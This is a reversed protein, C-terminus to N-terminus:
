SDDERGRLGAVRLAFSPLFSATTFLRPLAYPNAGPTVFGSRATLSCGVGLEQLISAPREDYDGDTGNPYAFSTVTTGLRKEILRVSTAIESRLQEEDLRSMIYHRHTHAGIRVGGAVLRRAHDWSITRPGPGVPGLVRELHALLEDVGDPGLGKMHAVLLGLSQLRAEPEDLSLTPLGFSELDLEARETHKFLWRTRDTWLPTGDEPPGTSLLLTAPLGLRELEPLVCEATDPYGDDITLAVRAPGPAGAGVWQLVTELPEVRYSSALHELQARFHEVRLAPFFPDDEDNVRHYLLLVGRGREYRRRYGALAGFRLLSWAAARRLPRTLAM